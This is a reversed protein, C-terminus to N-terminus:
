LVYCTVSFAAWALVLPVGWWREFHGKRCAVAIYIRFLVLVALMAPLHVQLFIEEIPLPAATASAGVVFLVNLVDAGVVNGILLGPHNRRVATIGVVLEPLSTGFAVITGSIVVQSVNLQLAFESVSAILFRSSVLVLLLGGLLVLLLAGLGRGPAQDGAEEELGLGSATRERAWRVSVFLYAALLGLFLIGVSRGVIADAGATWYAAYCLGALLLGSGFQVWGQRNLIFRDVPLRMMLCGAGFILGTDAIISGVANGLALGSNGEVAAMVSVAAEPCTTGLSVITAGIIVKPMGLRAALESAGEVLWDAGRMLVYTSVALCALLQWVARGSFWEDPILHEFMPAWNLRCPAVRRRDGSSITFRPVNGPQAQFPSTAQWPNM